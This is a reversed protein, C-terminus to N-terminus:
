NRKTAMETSIINVNLKTNGFAKGQGLQYADAGQVLIGYQQAPNARDDYGSPASIYINKCRHGGAGTTINIGAMANNRGIVVGGTVDEAGAILIGNQKAYEGIVNDMKIRGCFGNLQQLYIGNRGRKGNVNSMQIDFSDRISVADWTDNQVDAIVDSLSVNSAGDNLAVGAHSTAGIRVNSITIRSFRGARNNGDVILAQTKCNAGKFGRIELNRTTGGPTSVFGFGKGPSSIIESSNFVCGDSDIVLVACRDAGFVSSDQNTRNADVSLGIVRQNVPSPFVLFNEAAPVDHLKLVAGPAFIWTSNNANMQVGAPLLYTGRPFHVDLKHTEAAIRLAKLAAANTASNSSGEELSMLGFQQATVAQGKRWKRRSSDAGTNTDANADTGPIVWGLDRAKSSTVALSWTIASVGLLLSRRTKDIGGTM